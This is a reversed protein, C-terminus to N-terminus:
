IYGQQPRRDEIRPTWAQNASQRIEVLLVDDKFGKNTPIKPKKAM